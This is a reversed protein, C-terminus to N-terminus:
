ASTSSVLPAVRLLSRRTALTSAPGGALREVDDYAHADVIPGEDLVLVEAIEHCVLRMAHSLIWVYPDVRLDDCEKCAVCIGVHSDTGDEISVAPLAVHVNENDDSMWIRLGIKNPHLRLNKVAEAVREAGLAVPASVLPEAYRTGEVVPLDLPEADEIIEFDLTFPTIHLPETELQTLAHEWAMLEDETFPTM